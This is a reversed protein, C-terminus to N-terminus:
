ECWDAVSKFIAMSEFELDYPLIYQLYTSKQRSPKCSFLTLTSLHVIPIPQVFRLREGSLYLSKGLAMKYLILDAGGDLFQLSLSYSRNCPLLHTMAATITPLTATPMMITLGPFAM